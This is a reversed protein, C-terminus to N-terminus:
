SSPFVPSIYLLQLPLSPGEEPEQYSSKLLCCGYSDLCFLCPSRMEVQLQSLRKQEDVFTMSQKGRLIKSYICSKKSFFIKKPGCGHCISTGLSPTSDSGYSSAKVVAVAVHSRLWMQSSCWLEGCRWIRLGNHSAQTRVQTRMPALWTWTWQAMLPVGCIYWKQYSSQGLMYVFSPNKAVVWFFFFFFFTPLLGSTLRRPTGTRTAWRFHIWSPVMLDHTRDRAGSAPNFIGHQQSCVWSLDLAATAYSPLLLELLVGLRPFEMHQPYPGIFVFFFFSRM